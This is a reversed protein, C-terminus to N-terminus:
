HQEDQLIFRVFDSEIAQWNYKQGALERAQQCRQQYLLPNKLYEDVIDVISEANKPNVLHGFSEIEPCGKTIAKLDSYIVPRGMAMFYFLKIPLCRQNETDTARLDMFIDNDAATRCFQEFPIYPSINLTLNAPIAPPQPLTEPSLVNLVVHVNPNFRAIWVAAKLVNPFGKEESLNGSYFLRLEQSIDRPPFSELYNLAPYYSTFVYPRKPFFRRFPKAKDEEGFIFGDTNCNVGWNFLCLAVYKAVREIGSLMHLNKKSPYWETIDYLIRCSTKSKRRYTQAGRIAMPTDAIIVDPKVDSLISALHHILKVRKYRDADYLVFAPESIFNAKPAIVVVEVGVKQLACAQHYWVREDDAAHATLLFALKSM